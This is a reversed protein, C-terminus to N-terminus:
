IWKQYTYWKKTSIYDGTPINGKVNNGTIVSTNASITSEENEDRAGYYLESQLYRTNPCSVLGTKACMWYMLTASARIVYTFTENAIDDLHNFEFDEDMWGKTHPTGLDSYKRNITLTTGYNLNHIGDEDTSPFHNTLMSVSYYLYRLADVDNMDFIEYLLGGKKRVDTHNWKQAFFVNPHDNCDIIYPYWTGDILPSGMFVEYLEPDPLPPSCKHDDNRTHAPVSMDGLLHLMRGLINFGYQKRVIDSFQVQQYHYSTYGAIDTVGVLIANGESLFNCLNNYQYKTSIVRIETGNVPVGLYANRNFFFYDQWEDFYYTQWDSGGFYRLAKMYANPKHGSAILYPKWTDGWHPSWFHTVTTWAGGGFNLADIEDEEWAGIVVADDVNWPNHTPGKGNYNLGLYSKLIPIEGVEEELLKYAEKVIYQHVHEKHIFKHYQGKSYMNCSYLLFVWFVYLTIKM